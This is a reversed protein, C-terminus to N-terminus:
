LFEGVFEANRDGHTAQQRARALPVLDLMAQEREDGAVPAALREDTILHDDLQDGCGGGLGAEFRVRGSSKGGPTLTESSSGAFM